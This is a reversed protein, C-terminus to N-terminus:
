LVQRGDDNLYAITVPLYFIKDKIRETAYRGSSNKVVPLGSVLSGTHYLRGHHSLNIDSQCLHPLFHGAHYEYRYVGDKSYQHLHHCGSYGGPKSVAM